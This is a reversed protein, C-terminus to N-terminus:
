DGTTEQVVRVGLWTPGQDRLNCAVSGGTGMELLGTCVFVVYQEAINQKLLLNIQFLVWVTKFM